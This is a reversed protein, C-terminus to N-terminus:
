MRAQQQLLRMRLTWLWWDSSNHTSRSEKTGGGCCALVLVVVALTAILVTVHSGVAAWLIPFGPGHDFALGFNPNTDNVFIVTWMTAAALATAGSFLDTAVIIKWHHPTYFAILIAAICPSVISVVLLAASAISLRQWLSDEQLTSLGSSNLLAIWNQRATSSTFDPLLVSWLSPNQGFRRHCSITNNTFYQRCVGPNAPDSPVSSNVSYIM